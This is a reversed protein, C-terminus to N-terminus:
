ALKAIEKRIAEAVEAMEGETTKIRGFKGKDELKVPIVHVHIHAVAQNAAQTKAIASQKACSSALMM